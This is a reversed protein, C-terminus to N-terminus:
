KKKVPAASVIGLKEEIMKEEVWTIDVFTYRAIGIISMEDLIDVFNGYSATKYAKILVIPGTDDVNKLQAIAKPVSDRPIEIKGSIM